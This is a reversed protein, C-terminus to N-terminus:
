YPLILLSWLTYRFLKLRNVVSEKWFFFFFLDTSFISVHSRLCQCIFASRFARFLSSTVDRLTKYFRWQSRRRRPPELAINANLLNDIQTVGNAIRDLLEKYATSDLTFTTRKFERKIRSENWQVQNM